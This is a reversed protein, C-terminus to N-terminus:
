TVCRVEGAISPDYGPLDALLRRYEVSRVTQLLARLRVDAEAQGPYCFEFVESRLALFNLDM